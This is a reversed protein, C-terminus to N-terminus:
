EAADMAEKKCQLFGGSLAFLLLQKREFYATEQIAANCLLATPNFPSLSTHGSGWVHNLERGCNTMQGAPDALCSLLFCVEFSREWGDFSTLKALAAERAKYQTAWGGELVWINLRIKLEAWHRQNLTAVVDHVWHFIHIPVAVGMMVREARLGDKYM